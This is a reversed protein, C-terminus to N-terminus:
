VKGAAAQFVTLRIIRGVLRAERAFSQGVSDIQLDLETRRLDGSRASVASRLDGRCGAAAVNSPFPHAGTLPLASAAPLEPVISFVRAALATRM